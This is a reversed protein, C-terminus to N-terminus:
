FDRVRAVMINNPYEGDDGGEVYTIEYDPNIELIKEIFDKKGLYDFAQTNCCHMDDILITHTKIPHKKIQELEELLPCNKGGDPRPPYIHADLWFTIPEDIFEIMKWLDISSSGHFIKVQPNDSFRIKADRAINEDIEISYVKPFGAKLALSIGKGEFTGTEVFVPNLFAGYGSPGVNAFILSFFTTFVLFLLYQFKNM